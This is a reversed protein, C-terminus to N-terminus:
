GPGHRHMVTLDASERQRQPGRNSRQLSVTDTQVRDDALQSGPQGAAWTDARDAGGM